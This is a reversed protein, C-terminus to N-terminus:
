PKKKEQTLPSWFVRSHSDASRQLNGIKRERPSRQSRKLSILPSPPRRRTLSSSSDTLRLSLALSSWGVTMLRSIAFGRMTSRATTRAPMFRGAESGGLVSFCLWFDKLWRSWRTIGGGWFESIPYNWEWFIKLFNWWFNIQFYKKRPTEERILIPKLPRRSGSAGGIHDHSPPRVIILIVTSIAPARLM